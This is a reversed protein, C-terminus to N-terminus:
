ETLVIGTSEDFPNSIDIPGVTDPGTNPDDVTPIDPYAPETPLTSGGSSPPTTGSNKFYDLISKGLTSGIMIPKNNADVMPKGDKDVAQTQGFPTNWLAMGSTGLGLIQSLVSPSMQGQGAPGTVSQSTSTPITLGSLLNAYNQLSTMPYNLKQQELTQQQAGLKSLADLGSISQTQQSSSLDGLTKATNLGLTQQNQAAELAKQWGTNLAQAQQGAIGLAANKAATAQVNQARSSGFQGGAVAASTMAPDIFNYFNQSGLEGISKVVRDVYPDFYQNILSSTPTNQVNTASQIAQNMTPQSATLASPASTFAQTQLASAPAVGGQRIAEQGQTALGSVWNNYWDPATTQSTQTQTVTPNITPDTIAM